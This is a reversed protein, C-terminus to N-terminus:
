ALHKRVTTASKRRRFTLVLSGDWEDNAISDALGPAVGFRNIVTGDRRVVVEFEDPSETVGTTRFIEGVTTAADDTLTVPLGFSGRRDQVTGVKSVDTEDFLLRDTDPGLLRVAVTSDVGTTTSQETSDPTSGTLGAATCGSCLGVAAASGLRLVVRRSPSM